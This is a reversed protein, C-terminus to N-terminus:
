RRIPAPEAFAAHEPGECVGNRRGRGLGLVHAEPVSDACAVPMENLVQVGIVGGDGIIAEARDAKVPDDSAVYVLVDTDLFSGPM